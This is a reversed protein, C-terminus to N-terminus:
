QQLLEMGDNLIIVLHVYIWNLPQIHANHFPQQRENSQLDPLERGLSLLRVIGLSCLLPLKVTESGIVTYAM